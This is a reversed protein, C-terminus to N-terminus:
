GKKNINKQWCSRHKDANQATSSLFLGIWLGIRNAYKYYDYITNKSTFVGNVETSKNIIAAFTNYDRLNL